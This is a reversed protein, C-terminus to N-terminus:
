ARPTLPSTEPALRTRASAASLAVDEAVQAGESGDVGAAGGDVRPQARPSGECPASTRRVARARRWPACPRSVSLM